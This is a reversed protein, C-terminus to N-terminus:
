LMKRKKAHSVASRIAPNDLFSSDDSSSSSSSESDSFCIKRKVMDLPNAFQWAVSSSPTPDEFKMAIGSIAKKEHVGRSICQDDDDDDDDLNIIEIKKELNKTGKGPSAGQADKDGKNQPQTSGAVGLSYHADEAKEVTDNRFENGCVDDDKDEFDTVVPKVAPEGENKRGGSADVSLLLIIDNELREVRENLGCFKTNSSKLLNEVRRKEDALKGKEKRLEGITELSKKVSGELEDKKIELKNLADKDDELVRVKRKVEDLAVSDDLWKKKSKRLVGLENSDEEWKGKMKRLGLVEFELGDNKVSLREIENGADVCKEKLKKVECELKSNKERLERIRVGEALGNVKVEMMLSEYSKQLGRKEKEHLEEREKFDVEGQIRTLREFHLEEELKRRELDVNEQLRQIEERLSADRSVLVGEVRNFTEVQYTGRLIAVLDQITKEEFNIPNTFTFGFPLGPEIKPQINM